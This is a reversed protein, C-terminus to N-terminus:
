DDFDNKFDVSYYFYFKYLHVKLGFVHKHVLLDKGEEGGPGTNSPASSM